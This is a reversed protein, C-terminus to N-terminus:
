KVRLTLPKERPLISISEVNKMYSNILRKASYMNIFLLTVYTLIKLINHGYSNNLEVAFYIDYAFVTLISLHVMVAISIITLKFAKM